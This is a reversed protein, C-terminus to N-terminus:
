EPGAAQARDLEPDADPHAAQEKAPELQAAPKAPALAPEAQAQALRTVRLLERVRQRQDEAQHEKRTKMGAARPHATDRALPPTRHWRPRPMQRSRDKRVPRLLLRLRAM